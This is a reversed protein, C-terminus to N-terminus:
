SGVGWPLRGSAKDVRRRSTDVRNLWPFSLSAIVFTKIMMVPIIAIHAIPMFAHSPFSILSM